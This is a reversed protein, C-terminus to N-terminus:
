VGRPPLGPPTLITGLVAPWLRRRRGWRAGDGDGLPPSPPPHALLLARAASHPHGGDAGGRQPAFAPQRRAPSPASRSRAAAGLRGTAEARRCRGRCRHRSRSASPAALPRRCKRGGGGSVRPPRSGAHGRPPSCGRQHGGFRAGALGRRAAVAPRARPPRSPRLAYGTRRRSADLPVVEGRACALLRRLSCCRAARRFPLASAHAVAGQGTLPGSRQSVSSAGGEVRLLGASRWRALDAGGRSRGLSLCVCRAVRSFARSTAAPNPLLKGAGGCVQMGVFRVRVSCHLIGFRFSLVAGCRVSIHLRASRWDGIHLLLHTRPHAQGRLVYRQCGAYSPWRRGRAAPAEGGREAWPRAGPPWRGHGAGCGRGRRTARGALRGRGRRAWSHGSPRVALPPWRLVGRAPRHQGAHRVAGPHEGRALRGADAGPQGAAGEAAKM